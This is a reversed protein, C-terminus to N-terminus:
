DVWLTLTTSDTLPDPELEFRYSGFGTPAYGEAFAAFSEAGSAYHDTRGFTHSGRRGTAVSLGNKMEMIPYTVKFTVDDSGIANKTIRIATKQSIIKKM